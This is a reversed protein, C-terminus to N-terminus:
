LGGGIRDYVSVDPPPLTEWNPLSVFVGDQPVTRFLLIQEVAESSSVNASVAEEVGSIVDREDHEKLTVKKRQPQVSPYRVSFVVLFIITSM